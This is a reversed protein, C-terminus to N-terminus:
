ALVRVCSHFPSPLRNSHVTRVLARDGGPSLAIGKIAETGCHQPNQFRIVSDDDLDLLVVRGLEAFFDVERVLVSRGSRAASAGFRLFPMEHSWRWLAGDSRRYTVVASSNHTALERPMTVPDYVRPIPRETLLLSFFSEGSEHFWMCHVWWRGHDIPVDDFSNSSVNWVRLKQRRVSLDLDDVPHSLVLVYEGCPSAVIQDVEDDVLVRRKVVLETRSCWPGSDPSICLLRRVTPTDRGPARSRDFVFGMHDSSTVITCADHAVRIRMGEFRVNASRRALACHTSACHLSQSALAVFFVRLVSEARLELRFQDLFPTRSSWDHPCARTVSRCVLEARLDPTETIISDWVFACSLVYAAGDLVTRRKALKLADFHRENEDIHLLHALVLGVIPAALTGFPGSPSEVSRRAETDVVDGKLLGKAIERREEAIELETQQSRPRRMAIMASM